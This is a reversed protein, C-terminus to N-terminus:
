VHARGIEEHRLIMPITEKDTPLGLVGATRRPERFPDPIEGM